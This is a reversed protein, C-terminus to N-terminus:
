IPEGSYASINAGYASMGGSVAGAVRAPAPRSPSTAERDSPRARQSVRVPARSTWLPGMGTAAAGDVATGGDNGAALAGEILKRRGPPVYREFTTTTKTTTTTTPQAQTEGQGTATDDRSETSSSNILLRTEVAAAVYHGSHSNSPGSTGPETDTAASYPGASSELMNHERDRTMGESYCSTSIPPTNAIIGTEPVVLEAGAVVPESGSLHQQAPRSSRAGDVIGADSTDGKDDDAACCCAGDLMSSPPAHLPLADDPRGEPLLGYLLARPETAPHKIEPSVNDKNAVEDHTGEDHALMSEATCDPAAVVVVTTTTQVAAMSSVPTGQHEGEAHQVAPDKGEQLGDQQADSADTGPSLASKPLREAVVTTTTTTTTTLAPQRRPASSRSASQSQLMPTTNSPAKNDDGEAVRRGPPVYQSWAKRPAKRRSQGKSSGEAEFDVAVEAAQHASSSKEDDRSEVSCQRNFKVECVNEHTTAENPDDEEHVVAAAAVITATPTATSSSATSALAPRQHAACDRSRPKRQESGGRGIETSGKGGSGVASGGGEHKTSDQQQQNTDLIGVISGKNSTTSGSSTGGRAAPPIYPSRSARSKKM